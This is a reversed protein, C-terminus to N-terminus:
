TIMYPNSMFILIFGRYTFMKEIVSHSKVAVMILPIKCIVNVLASELDRIYKFSIGRRSNALEDTKTFKNGDTYIMSNALCNVCVCDM